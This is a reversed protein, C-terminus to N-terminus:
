RVAVQAHLVAERKELMLSQLTVGDRELGDLWSLLARAEGSLTLRLLDNDTDMQHLELGTAAVSESIRLSLPQDVPGPAHTRPLAQQLQAALAMQQRHQREAVALRQQTPQWILGFAAVSLVFLSLILVMRQERLSLGQWKAMFGTFKM